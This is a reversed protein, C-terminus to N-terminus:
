VHHKLHEIGLSRLKRYLHTREMGVRKALEGVSGGVVSLQRQLYIREFEARAKRLPLNLPLLMSNDPMDARVKPSALASKVEEMGVEVEEGLMMLRHVLTRLERINGPWIYNRLFNQAAVGFHRYSLKETEVFQDVFFALLEPIDERHQRLSPVELSVGNLCHYLEAKFGEQQVLLALNKSSAALLRVDCRLPEVGGVRTFLGNMVVGLLQSQLAESMQALDDLFLSGGHARELAGATVKGAVESGFIELAEKDHALRSLNIEIFPGAARSSQAHLNQMLTRKGAGFEGMVLVPTEYAAVKGLKDRLSGLVESSGVMRSVVLSSAARHLNSIPIENRQLAKQVTLLLKALSLPKEIFDTAGFRTAEVATEVTGHGSMMIVPAALDGEMKWEKLLTIGDEDPMWIDLLVLDPERQQLIQRATAANKAVEVEYGEDELIDRVSSCIDPEDDVVLIYPMNM